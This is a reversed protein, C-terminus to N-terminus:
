MKVVKKVVMKEGALVKVFYIGKKLYAVDFNLESNNSASQFLVEGATNVLTVTRPLSQDFQITIKESVPNPFINVPIVNSYETVSTPSYEIKFYYLGGVNLRYVGPNFAYCYTTHSNDVIYSTLTNAGYTWEVNSLVCISSGTVTFSLKISDGPNFYFPGATDNPSGIYSASTGLTVNSFGQSLSCKADSIKAILSLLFLFTIKKM